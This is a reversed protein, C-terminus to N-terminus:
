LSFAYSQKGFQSSRKLMVKWRVFDLWWGRQHRSGTGWSCPGVSNHQTTSGERKWILFFWGNTAQTARLRGGLWEWPNEWQFFVIVFLTTKCVNWTKTTTTTKWIQQQQEYRLRQWYAAPMEAKLDKCVAEMADRGRYSIFFSIISKYNNNNNHNQHPWVFCSIEVSRGGISQAGRSRASWLMMFGQILLGLWAFTTWRAQSCKWIVM